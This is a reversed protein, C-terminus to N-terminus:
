RAAMALPSAQLARRALLPTITLPDACVPL